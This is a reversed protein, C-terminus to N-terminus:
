PQNYEWRVLLGNEVATDKIASASFPFSVAAPTKTNDQWTSDLDSRFQAKLMYMDYSGYGGIITHSLKLAVNAPASLLGLDITSTDVKAIVDGTTPAADGDLGQYLTAALGNFSKIRGFQAGVQIEDGAKYGTASTFNILTKTSASAATTPAPSGAKVTRILNLGGLILAMNVPSGELLNGSFMADEATVFTQQLGAPVGSYFDLFQRTLKFNLGETLGLKRWKTSAKATTYDPFSTPAYYLIGNGATIDAGVLTSAGQSATM